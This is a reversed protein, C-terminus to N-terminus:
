CERDRRPLARGELGDGGRSSRALCPFRRGAEHRGLRVELEGAVVPLTHEGDDLAWQSGNHEYKLRWGDKAGIKEGSPIGAKDAIRSLLIPLSDSETIPWSSLRVFLFRLSPDTLELRARTTVDRGVNFCSSAGRYPLAFAGNSPLHVNFIMIAPRLHSLHLFHSHLATSTSPDISVCRTLSTWIPAVSSTRKRLGRGEGLSEQGRGDDQGAEDAEIGLQNTLLASSGATGQSILQHLGRGPRQHRLRVDGGDVGTAARSM